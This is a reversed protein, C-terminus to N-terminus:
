RPLAETHSGLACRVVSANVENGIMRATSVNELKFDILGRCHRHILCGRLTVGFRIEGWTLWNPEHPKGELAGGAAEEFSYRLSM